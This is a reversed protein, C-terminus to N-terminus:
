LNMNAKKKKKLINKRENKFMRLMYIKFERHSKYIFYIGGLIM